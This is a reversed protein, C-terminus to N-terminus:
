LEMRITDILIGLFSLTVAPGELKEIAINIPFGLRTLVELMLQLAQECQHTSPSSVLLFDDLYHIIDTIAYNNRLIWELADAYQNFIFPASRLGFPLCRDVYFKNKWYIGLLERDKHRVPITRFASKIDIKALKAGQGQKQILKM